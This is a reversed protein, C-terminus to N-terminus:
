PARRAHFRWISSGHRGKGLKSPSTYCVGVLPWEGPPLRGFSLEYGNALAMAKMAAFTPETLAHRKTLLAVRVATRRSRRGARKEEVRLILWGM